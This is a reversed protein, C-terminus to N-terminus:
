WLAYLFISSLSNCARLNILPLDYPNRRGWIIFFFIQFPNSPPMTTLVQKEASTEHSLFLTVSWIALNIAMTSYCYGSHQFLKPSLKTIVDRCQSKRDAMRSQLKWALVTQNRLVMGRNAEYISRMCIDQCWYFWPM